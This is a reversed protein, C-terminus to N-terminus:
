LRDEDPRRGFYAALKDRLAQRSSISLQLVKADLPSQKPNVVARCRVTYMQKFDIMYHGTAHKAKGVTYEPLLPHAAYIFVSLLAYARGGGIRKEREEKQLGEWKQPPLVHEPLMEYNLRTLDEEWFPNKFFGPRVQQLPCLTLYQKEISCCPTLIASHTPCFVQLSLGDPGMETGPEEFCPTGAVFGQVIDGLRFAPDSEDEYHAVPPHDTKTQM